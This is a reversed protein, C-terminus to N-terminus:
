AYADLERRKISNWEKTIDNSTPTNQFASVSTDAINAVSITDYETMLPFETEIVIAGLEELTKKAQHWLDLISQRTTIPNQLVEPKGFYIKPVGFQKGHLTKTNALSESSAPRIDLFEPVTVFPRDRRLDGATCEDNVLIIGLIELLDQGTRTHSVIVDCTPYLPWNGRMSLQGQSPTYALLESNSALNGRSSLKEEAM